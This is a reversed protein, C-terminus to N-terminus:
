LWAAGQQWAKLVQRAIVLRQIESTGEGISMLRQDRYLREVPYERSYGYSGHVQIADFCVKEAVESAKLKAMAALRTYDQGKDKLWAAKYVLLRAAEIEMAANAIKEQILQKSAIPEGFAQRELAYRLLAEYAGQALGVSLAGISIRGSDLTQMTMYFGSGEEGLLHDAPVRVNELTLMHTPSAKLGMKKEPPHVTVGARDPEVLLLSFGRSGGAPDTRALVSLVPAFRVNTIWAKHGNLVYHDGDRRATTQAGNLLDSGAQPETLALGGLHRGSTLLPLWREKQAATGWAMLPGCGLGNHASISLGTSGCVRGIEEVALAAGTTDLGAGGYAESVQLGTLGLAPMKHIASWALEGTEDATAAHPALERECFERVTRRFLKLEDQLEFDM